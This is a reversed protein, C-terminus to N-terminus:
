SAGHGLSLDSVSGTGYRLRAKIRRRGGVRIGGLLVSTEDGPEEDDEFGGTAVSRGEEGEIERAGALNVSSSPLQDDSRPRQGIRSEVPQGRYVARRRHVDGLEARNHRRGRRV